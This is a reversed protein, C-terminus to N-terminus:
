WPLNESGMFSGPSSFGGPLNPTSQRYELLPVFDTVFTETTLPISVKKSGNITRNSVVSPFLLDPVHTNLLSPVM